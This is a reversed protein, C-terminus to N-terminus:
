GSVPWWVMAAKYSFWAPSPATRYAGESMAFWLDDDPWFESPRHGLWKSSM